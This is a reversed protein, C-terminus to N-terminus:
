WPVPGDDDFFGGTPGDAGITAMRVAIAAGQATTRPAPFPLNRTFDTACAGPAVANVLINEASLAKAYQVTLSNLTTKSVPYAIAAPLKSMYHGPDTMHRLSGTGSSVNVIRAAASRRLLPLMAETVMIVGFVNTDFVARVAALEAPGPTKGYRQGSIGANNVLIDLRRYGAAIRAAAQDITRQDTVDINIMHVDGALEAAAAAGLRPDRAGLLVTMGLDALQATMGLDALQATMGLDALQAAIARGIGKNAGTVLAITSEDAM